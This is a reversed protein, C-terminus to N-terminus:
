IIKKKGNKGSSTTTFCNRLHGNIARNEKEGCRRIRNSTMDLLKM